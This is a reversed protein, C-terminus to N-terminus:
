SPVGDAVALYYSSTNFMAEIGPIHSQHTCIRKADTSLVRFGSNRLLDTFEAQSWANRHSFIPATETREVFTRLTKAITWPSTKNKLTYFLAPECTAPGHYADNEFNHQGSFHDGYAQNWYGCFIMSARSDISDSVGKNAWTKRIDAYNWSADSFYGLDDEKWAKLVDDFNPLKIVLMGENSLVRHAERLCREVTEDNLHEFCHSSFVTQISGNPAAIETEESLTTPIPNSPSAVAELNLWSTFNFFPGGGINVYKPPHQTNFQTTIIEHLAWVIPTEHALRLQDCTRAAQEVDGVRLLARIKGVLADLSTPDLEVALEFSTLGDLADGRTVAEKGRAVWERCLKERENHDFSTDHTM